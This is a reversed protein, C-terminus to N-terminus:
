ELWYIYECSQYILKGNFGGAIFVEGARSCAGADSRVEKMPAVFDWKDKVQDYKEVSQMRQRGNHGGMALIQGDDLVATSVFCRAENMSSVKSIKFDPLDLRNVEPRNRNGRSGGVFYICKQPQIVAAASM